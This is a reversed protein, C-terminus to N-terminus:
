WFDYIVWVVATQKVKDEDYFQDVKYIVANHECGSVWM